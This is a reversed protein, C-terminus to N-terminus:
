PTANNTTNFGASGLVANLTPRVAILVVSVVILMIARSKSDADENKFALVLMVISWALLIIGIYFAIKVVIDLISNVIQDETDAAYATPMLGAPSASMALASNHLTRFLKM